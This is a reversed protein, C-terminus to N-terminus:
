AHRIKQLSTDLKRHFDSPADIAQPEQEAADKRYDANGYIKEAEKLLACIISGADGYRNTKHGLAKLGDIMQQSTGYEYHIEMPFLQHPILRRKSIKDSGCRGATKIKAVFDWVSINRFLVLAISTTIKTGGSAGIVLKVDGNEDVLISPSMSSLPRKGPKLENNPSGPLDFYHRFYPFSFDDMVSNLIIGMQQSTLGAGFSYFLNISSIVSVADGNEALVSIHATGHDDKNYFKAGYDRPDNSTLNEEIESRIGAAYNTINVVSTDGLQTRKAYAYKFAEIIKHYTQVTNDV